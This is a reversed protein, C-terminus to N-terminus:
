IKKIKVACTKWGASNPDALDSFDILNMADNANVALPVFLQGPGMRNSRGLKRQIAGWRSEIQVTDGDKLKLRDADEACLAVENGLDFDRIRGSANTRTGSGLHFRLTGLIAKLPYDADGNEDATSVVPSFAIMEGADETQFAAMPSSANFWCQGEATMQAYPPVLRCIEERIKEMTGYPEPTGLRTALLDLIKWDPKAMGPPPVVQSFSQIRGEMNTFSGSKESPAAGPLAVDALKVIENNLIDQVVVFEIKKLAAKVREPQPLSRLPNEGMIYLAKLRGSEAAEILRSM